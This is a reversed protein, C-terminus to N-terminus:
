EQGAGPAGPEKAAVAREAAERIWEEPTKGGPSVLVGSKDIVEVSVAEKMGTRTKEWWVAATVSQPGGKVARTYLSQAVKANAKLLGTDLEEPFHFRLTELSVSKGTEPNKVLMAIQEQKLAGTAALAEVQSRQEITPIFPQQGSPPIDGRSTSALRAKAAEKFRRKANKDVTAALKKLDARAKRRSTNSRKLRAVRRAESAASRAKASVKKKKKAAM